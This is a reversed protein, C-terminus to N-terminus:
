LFFVAIGSVGLFVGVGVGVGVLAQSPLGSSVPPSTNNQTVVAITMVAFTINDAFCASSPENWTCNEGFTVELSFNSVITTSLGVSYTGNNNDLITAPIPPNAPNVIDLFRASVLDSFGGYEVTNNCADINQITFYATAEDNATINIPPAYKDSVWKTYADELTVTTFTWQTISIAGTRTPGTSATFGIYAARSGIMDEITVNRLILYLSNELFVQIWPPNVLYEVRVTFQTGNTFNAFSHLTGYSLRTDNSVNNYDLGNSHIRVQSTACFGFDREVCFDFVVALSGIMNGIGLNGGTGGNLNSLGQRQIVFASGESGPAATFTFNSVFGAGINQEVKHFIYGVTNEVKGNTLVFTPASPVTTNVYGYNPGGLAMFDSSTFNAVPFAIQVVGKAIANCPQTLTTQCKFNSGTSHREAHFIDLTYIEGKVLPPVIDDLTVSNEM